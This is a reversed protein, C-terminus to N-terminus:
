QACRNGGSRGGSPTSKRQPAATEAGGAAVHETGSTGDVGSAVQTTTAPFSGPHFPAHGSTAARAAALASDSIQM